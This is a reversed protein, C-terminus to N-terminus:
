LSSHHHTHLHHDVLPRHLQELLRQRADVHAVAVVRTGALRTEAAAPTVGVLIVVSAAARKAEDVGVAFFTRLRGSVRATATYTM